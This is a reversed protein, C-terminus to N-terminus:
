NKGAIKKIAANIRRAMRARIKKREARWTPYFFPRAPTAAHGRKGANRTHGREDRYRGPARGRTGFEVWRAYYAYYDGAFITIQSTNIGEAAKLTGVSTIVKADKPAAGWVWNISDRLNGTDVPVQARMKNVIDQAAEEMAARVAEQVAKPLVSLKKKLQAKRQWQVPM